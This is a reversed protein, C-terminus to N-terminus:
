TGNFLVFGSRSSCQWDKEELNPSLILQAKGQNKVFHLIGNATKKLWGSTFFGVGRNYRVSRQLLPAVVEQALDTELSSYTRKLPLNRLSSSEM